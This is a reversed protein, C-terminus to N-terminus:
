SNPLPVRLTVVRYRSDFLDNFVENAGRQELPQEPPGYSGGTQGLGYTGGDGEAKFASNEKKQGLADTLATKLTGPPPIYFEVLVCYESANTIYGRSYRKNTAVGQFSPGRPLWDDSKLRSFEEFTMARYWYQAQAVECEGEQKAEAEYYVVQDTQSFHKCTLHHASIIRKYKSWEGGREMVRNHVDVLRDDIAASGAVATPTQDSLMSQGIKVRQVSRAEGDQQVVHTLEHAILEQGGRSGPQYEGQRFFVDQGTTFAKAQISQNLQDAQANTHVKVRSFDAGFAQEMPERISDALPQGGGRARKIGVEVDASAAMGGDTVHQVISRMQLDDKDEPMQRQVAQSQGSVAPANIQQVVERAVSDAEQEYKDGPEGITLKAQVQTASRSALLRNTARNGMTEQLTLVEDASLSSPDAKARQVISHVDNTIGITTPQKQVAKNSKALIQGQQRYFM